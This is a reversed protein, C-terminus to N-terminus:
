CVLIEQVERECNLDFELERGSGEEPSESSHFGHARKPILIEKHNMAELLM